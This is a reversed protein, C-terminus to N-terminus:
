VGMYKILRIWSTDELIRAENLNMLINSALIDRADNSVSITRWPTKFPAQISGKNGWADPTLWARFIMKSDDLNLHMCPFDVLAAEHLNIYLGDDTKMMLATQVGTKSFPTQSINYTIANKMKGSIESLRSITYDYEQTDYDGPIWFATHNGTMAFETHEEEIIFYILDDQQPFEYRFGLGDNFLRFRITMNRYTKAQVLNVKLENYRNRINSEEGWVPQWTEDFESLETDVVEFGDYLSKKPNKATIEMSMGDDDPKFDVHEKDLALEFGLSSTKIVEKNNYVLRYKPVGKRHISFELM